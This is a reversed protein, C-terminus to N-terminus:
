HYSCYVLCSASFLAAVCLQCSIYIPGSCVVVRAYLDVACECAVSGLLPLGKSAVAMTLESRRLSVDHLLLLAIFCFAREVWSL